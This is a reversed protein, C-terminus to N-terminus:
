PGGDCAVGPCPDRNLQSTLGLPLSGGNSRADKIIKRGVRVRAAFERERLDGPM